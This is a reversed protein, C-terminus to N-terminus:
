AKSAVPFRLSNLGIRQRIVAEGRTNCLSFNLQPEPSAFDIDLLGFNLAALVESQRRTNPTPIDWVETLGSSTADWLPYGGPVDWRSMEAYHMDGSLFVLGEAQTKQVLQVLREREAPFLDWGEWGGGSAAFQVSSGLIRVDAPVRLQAELWQWQAEGLLSAEPKANPLYWGKMPQGTLKAKMVLATYSSKRSADPTLPTRNYRLDTLILQVRREGVQFVYSTYVGDRHRRPSSAPENWADCFLQQSRQKYPYDGGVDDDGFDHDDWIAVHPTRRRFDQLSQVAEFEAYRQALSAEDKADAYLNDGLFVFLDPHHASISPWIPQPKKQNACSGFAIRLRQASPPLDLQPARHGTESGEPARPAGAANSATPALALPTVALSSALLRRRTPQHNM